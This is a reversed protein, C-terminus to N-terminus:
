WKEHLGIATVEGSCTGVDRAGTCTSFDGASNAIVRTHPIIANYRIYTYKHANNECKQIFVKKM